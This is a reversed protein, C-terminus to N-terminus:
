EEVPLILALRQISRKVTINKVVEEGESNKQLLVYRVTVSQVRDDASPHVADVIDLEKIRSPDCILVLGGVCIDINCM